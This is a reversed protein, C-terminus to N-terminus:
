DHCVCFRAQKPNTQATNGPDPDERGNQWLFDPVEAFISLGPTRDPVRFFTETFLMGRFHWRTALFGCSKTCGGCCHRGVHEAATVTASRCSWTDSCDLAKFGVQAFHNCIEYHPLEPPPAAVICLEIRDHDTFSNSGLPILVSHVTPTQWAM